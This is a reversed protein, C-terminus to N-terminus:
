KWVKTQGILWELSKLNSTRGNESLGNWLLNPAFHVCATISGQPMEPPCNSLIKALRPPSFEGVVAYFKCNPNHRRAAPVYSNAEEIVDVRDHRFRWRASILAVTVKNRRAIIDIRPSKSRSAFPFGPFEVFPNVEEEIEVDEDGLTKLSHAILSRFANGVLNNPQFGVIEPHRWYLSIASCLERRGCGIEQALYATLREAREM